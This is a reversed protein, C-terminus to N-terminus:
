CVAVDQAVSSLETELSFIQKDYILNSIVRETVRLNADM